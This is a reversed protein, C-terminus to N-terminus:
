TIGKRPTMLFPLVGAYVEKSLVDAAFCQSDHPHTANSGFHGFSCCTKVHLNEIVVPSAPISDLSLDFARRRIAAM